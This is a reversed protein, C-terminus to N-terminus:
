MSNKQMADRQFPSVPLQENLGTSESQMRIKIGQSQRTQTYTHKKTDHTIKWLWFTLISLNSFKSVIFDIYHYLQRHLPWGVEVTFVHFLLKRLAAHWPFLGCKEFLRIFDLLESHRMDCIFAFLFYCFHVKNHWIQQSLYFCLIYTNCFGCNLAVVCTTIARRCQCSWWYKSICVRVHFPSHKFSNNEFDIIMTKVLLWQFPAHLM